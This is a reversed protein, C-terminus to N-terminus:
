SVPVTNQTAQNTITVPSPEDSPQESCKNMSLSRTAGLPLNLNFQGCDDATFDKWISNVHNWTDFGVQCNSSICNNYQVNSAVTLNFEKRPDPAWGYGTGYGFSIDPQGATNLVQVNTATCGTFQITDGWASFGAAQLDQPITAQINSVQSNNISIFNGYVELGTAKAGTNYPPPGDYVGNATFENVLVNKVLFLSMGHADDCCGTINNSSCYGFILNKSFVPIFGISTHGSTQTIGLNNTTLDSCSCNFTGIDWSLIYSFGQAGGDQNQLGSVQCGSVVGEWCMITQIGACSATNVDIDSVVCSNINFNACVSLFIGAPTILPEQTNTYKIQDINLQSLILGEIMNAQIGYFNAGSITGNYITVSTGSESSGPQVTIGNYQNTTTGAPLQVSLVNGGLNLQVNQAVITIAAGASSPSWVCNSTMTYTGPQNILWGNEPIESFSNSTLPTPIAATKNMKYNFALLHDTHDFYALLTITDLGTFITGSFIESVLSLKNPTKIKNKKM